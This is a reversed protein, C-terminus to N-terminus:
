MFHFEFLVSVFFNCKPFSFYIRYSGFLFTSPLFHSFDDLYSPSSLLGCLSGLHASVTAVFCSLSETLSTRAPSPPFPSTDGETHGQARRQARTYNQHRGRSELTSVTVKLSSQASLCNSAYARNLFFPLTSLIGM